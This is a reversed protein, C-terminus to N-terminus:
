FREHVHASRPRLTRQQTSHKSRNLRHAIPFFTWNTPFAISNLGDFNLPTAFIVIVDIQHIEKNAVKYKLITISKVMQNGIRQEIKAKLQQQFIDLNCVFAFEIRVKISQSEVNANPQKFFRNPASNRFSIKNNNQHTENKKTEIFPLTDEDIIKSADVRQIKSRNFDLLHENLSANFKVFKASLIHLQSNMKLIKEENQVFSSDMQNVQFQICEIANRIDDFDIGANSQFSDRDGHNAYQLTNSSSMQMIVNVISEQLSENNVFLNNIYSSIEVRHKKFETEISDMRQNIQDINENQQSMSVSNEIFHSNVNFMQDSIPKNFGLPLAFNFRTMNLTYFLEAFKSQKDKIIKVDKEYVKVFNNFNTSKLEIESRLEKMKSEYEYKQSEIMLKLKRIEEGYSENLPPNKIQDNNQKLEKKISTRKSESTQSSNISKRSQLRNRLIIPSRVSSTPM